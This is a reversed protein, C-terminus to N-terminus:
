PECTVNMCAANDMLCSVPTNVSWVPPSQTYCGSSANAGDYKSPCIASSSFADTTTAATTTTTGTTISTTAAPTTTTTAATTTTTVATTSTSAPTTTTLAATTSTTSSAVAGLFTLFLKMNCIARGM